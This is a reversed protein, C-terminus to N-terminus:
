AAPHVVSRSALRHLYGFAERYSGWVTMEVYPVSREQCFRRVLPQAQRLAPMPMSPFLHHEIQFNVGGFAYDAVRSGRTNRSTVVQRRLYDPAIGSVVPMGKHNPAFALAM